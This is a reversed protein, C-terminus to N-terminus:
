MTKAAKVASAPNSQTANDKAHRSRKFLGRKTMDATRKTPANSNKANGNAYAYTSTPDIRLIPRIRNISLQRNLWDKYICAPETYSFIIM